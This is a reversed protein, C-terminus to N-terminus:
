PRPGPGSDAAIRLCREMAELRAVMPASQHQAQGLILVALTIALDDDHHMTMLTWGTGKESGADLRPAILQGAERRERGSELAM